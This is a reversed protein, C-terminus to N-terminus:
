GQVCCTFKVLPAASLGAAQCPGRALPKSALNSVSLSLGRVFCVHCRLIGAPVRRRWEATWRGGRLGACLCREPGQNAWRYSPPGAASCPTPLLSHWWTCPGHSGGRLTGPAVEWSTSVTLLCWNSQIEEQKLGEVNEPVEGQEVRVSRGEFAVPAEQQRQSLGGHAWPQVHCVSVTLTGPGFDVRPRVPSCADM